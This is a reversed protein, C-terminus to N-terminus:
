TERKPTRIPSTMRNKSFGHRGSPAEARQDPQGARDRDYFIFEDVWGFMKNAEPARPEPPQPAAKAKVQAREVEAWLFFLGRRTGNLHEPIKVWVVQSSKGTKREIKAEPNRVGKPLVIVFTASDALKKSHRLRFDVPLCGTLVNLYIRSEQSCGFTTDWVCKV